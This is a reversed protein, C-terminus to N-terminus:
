RFPLALLLVAAVIASPILLRRPASSRQQSVEPLIVRAGSERSSTIRAMLDDRPAPVSLSQLEPRIAEAFDLAHSRNFWKM